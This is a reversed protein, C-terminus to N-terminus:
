TARAAATASGDVLVAAVPVGHALSHQLADEVLSRERRRAKRRRRFRNLVLLLLLAGIAFPAPNAKAEEALSGAKARAEETAHHVKDKVEDAKASAQAKVDAKDSLASVTEGLEERTQEIQRRLEEPDDTAVGDDGLPGDHDTTSM